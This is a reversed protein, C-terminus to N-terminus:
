KAVSNFQAAYKKATPLYDTLDKIRSANSPHTSLIEPQKSGGSNESMRVWVKAAETGDYGAMLMFILGLRDAEQEHVRSFKLM